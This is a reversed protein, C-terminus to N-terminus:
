PVKWLCQQRIRLKGEGTCRTEVLYTVLTKRMLTMLRMLVEEGTSTYIHSTWPPKPYIITVDTFTRTAMENKRCRTRGGNVGETGHRTKM